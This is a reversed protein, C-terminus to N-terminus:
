VPLRKGNADFVYENAEIGADVNEDSLRSEDEQELQRYVWNMYDRLLDAVEKATVVDVPEEGNLLVEIDTSYAHYYRDSHTIRAELRYGFRRQIAQLGTAIRQLTVDLPAESKLAAPAQKAYRYRGTFCAGDGQSSFGSFYIAPEQRERGGSLRITKRDIEIGLLAAFRDAEDYVADWWDSEQALLDRFWQRAREKAKDSLEAFDFAELTVTHPM